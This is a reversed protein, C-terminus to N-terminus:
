LVKDQLAYNYGFQDRMVYDFGRQDYAWSDNGHKNFEGTGKDLLIGNKDFWEITGEPEIQNGNLLNDVQGGSISLIPITHTDNIFFTHYDIFSAPINATSNYAVAKVVTTTAINIPGSYVASTNDPEDGNTTYYITINPDPSSLTLNVTASYYGGIQSFVPTTAYEQMAGVNTSNPTGTTFVSWNIAGDTERGRTHSNQNPFVRISDQLVSGADSLMFVENGKTQTIKFNSHAEIGIIEDRGSCYIIAIGNAPVIFSSPVMWKTPNSPKDTLYWGSIDIPAASTNYLEVWDEYEGYIDTHTDYNAGTYENIIIQGSASFLSVCSILLISLLKNM